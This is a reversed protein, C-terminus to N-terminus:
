ARCSECPVCLRGRATYSHEKDCLELFCTFIETARWILAALQSNSSHADNLFLEAIEEDVEALHEILKTRKKMALELIPGPIEDLEVVRCQSSRM